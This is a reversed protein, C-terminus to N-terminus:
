LGCDSIWFGFNGQAVMWPAPCAHITACPFKPNQIESQPNLSKRRAVVPRITPSDPLHSSWSHTHLCDEGDEGNEYGDSQSAFGCDLIRLGFDDIREGIFPTM